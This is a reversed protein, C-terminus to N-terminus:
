KGSREDPVSIWGEREAVRVLETRSAVGYRDFLRRLQGEVTKVQVTLRRAIEHNRRGEAVLTIVERQRDTPRPLATRASRLVAPPFVTGGAAVARIARTLQEISIVKDLYGAAGGEIAAAHFDPRDYGSFMLFAPAGPVSRSPALGGTRSRGRSRRQRTQALLRLGDRDGGLVIDCLVVDPQTGALLGTATALDPATGVLEIDLEDALLAVLGEALVAHDEVIALRIM